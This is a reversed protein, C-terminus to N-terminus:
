QVVVSLAWGFVLALSVVGLAFAVAPEVFAAYLLAIVGPIGILAILVWAFITM